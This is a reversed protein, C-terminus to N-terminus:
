TEYPAQCLGETRKSGQGFTFSVVGLDDIRAEIHTNATLMVMPGLAGTLIVNGAQLPEGRRALTTALWAAAFMPHGLCASGIGASAAEGDVELSMACKALDVGRPDVRTSGLVFYASSANDAITDAISIKWDAIRSDVIELAAVAYDTADLVDEPTITPGVLPRKLILAIEAEVKGELLRSPSLEGGDPVQMDDFLVGCDPQDVGFQRQVKDATLGIKRGVIRRGAGLWYQTNVAQVAYAADVDSPALFDRLPAVPTGSYAGRLQAAAQALSQDSQTM